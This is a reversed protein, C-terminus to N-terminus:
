RMVGHSNNKLTIITVEPTSNYRIPAISMGLGRNVVLLLDKFWFDGKVLNTEILTPTLNIYPFLITIQGGHTHGAFMLNYNNEMARQLIHNKPQHTLLIKLDAGNGNNTLSDLLYSDIRDSYTYTIFTIGVKASDINVVINKNDLMSINYQALSKIVESRSRYINDYAWNDHDGVCAYVGYKSKIKSVAKAALPIYEKDGTVMDGAIFVIDPDADNLKQIYKEIRGDYNYWDAQIDSILGIRLEHLDEHLNQMSYETERVSVYTMDFLIRAPVYLVSLFSVGVVFYANWKKLKERYSKLFPYSILRLLDVPFLLVIAQLIIMISIWFPYLFIIDYFLNQSPPDLDVGSLLEISWFIISAIPIFNVIIIIVVRTKNYNLIPSNPYLLKISNFFKKLFYFELVLLISVYLLLRAIWPM